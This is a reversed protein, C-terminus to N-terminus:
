RRHKRRRRIAPVLIKEDPRGLSSDPQNVILCVCSPLRLLLMPQLGTAKKTQSEQKDEAM